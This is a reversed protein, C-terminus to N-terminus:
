MQEIAEIGLLELGKKLVKKVSFVVLVRSLSLTQDETIVRHTAYFANFRSALELLYRAIVSPEFEWAARQIVQDFENVLLVVSYITSDDDTYVLGERYTIDGYRESYKKLLSSIRAHTYQLYVGTEGNFNLVEDWNFTIDKLRYNKLDNFIIAGVGVAEAVTKKDQIDPNKEEIITEALSAARDMVDELFIINGKRTSMAGEKFRIQGFPVHHCKSYWPMGMKELVRFVQRFHLQQPTGVVYLALDFHFTEYRYLAAAIDRTIYLTSGDKKRLLAPPVDELPVILADESIATIGSEIIKEVTSELMPGYFSEGTYQEFSVGLRKYIRQFDELSLDAFRKWLRRSEEDGKELKRFWERADDELAPIREAERHFRVYLDYLFRIPNDELGKENGWKKYATILKGFQTGWDGLHNIGIVRYGLFIHIRKLANGIVTSRLHGIGFPKAINPSSFDIVVTKGEGYSQLSKFTSKTIDKIIDGIVTTRNLFLNLYPGRAEAGEILSNKKDFGEIKRALDRAIDAPNRRELKAFQFCPVAYDGFAGNPPVELLAQLSEKMGGAISELAGALKAKIDISM